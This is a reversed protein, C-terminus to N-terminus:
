FPHARLSRGTTRRPACIGAWGSWRGSALGLGRRLGLASDGQAGPAAQEGLDNVAGLPLVGVLHGAGHGDGDDVTGGIVEAPDQFLGLLRGSVPRSRAEHRSGREGGRGPHLIQGSPAPMGSGWGCTGGVM